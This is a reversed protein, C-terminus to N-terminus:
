ARRRDDPTAYLRPPFRDAGVAHLTAPSVGRYRNLGALVTDADAIELLLEAIARAGLRHLHIVGAEIQLRHAPSM